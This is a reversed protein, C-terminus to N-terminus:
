EESKGNPPPATDPATPASGALGSLCERMSEHGICAAPADVLPRTATSAVLVAGTARDRAQVRVAAPLTVSDRWADHWVRDPGAYAFSVYFPARALAVPDSFRVQDALSREAVLPAFAARTRILAEGRADRDPALRVLELRPAVGPSAAVRVLTVSTADGIFLAARTQNNATIFEAAELDAVIRRLGVDLVELRQARGFGFRWQPLWQGTVTALSILIFGTMAVAALAEVLTFGDAGRPRGAILEIGRRM